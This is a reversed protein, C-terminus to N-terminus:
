WDIKCRLRGYEEPTYEAEEQIYKAAEQIQVNSEDKIKMSLDPDEAEAISRSNDHDLHKMAYNPHPAVRPPSHPTTNVWAELVSIDRDPTM